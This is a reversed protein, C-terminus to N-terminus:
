QEEQVSHLFALISKFQDDTFVGSWNPMGKDPRGNHVTTFFVQDMTDGYRHRLLRLNIRREAQVADPGHCHACTSNFLDAGDHAAAADVAPPPAGGGQGATASGAGEGAPAQAQPHSGPPLAAGKTVPPIQLDEGFGLTDTQAAAPRVAGM